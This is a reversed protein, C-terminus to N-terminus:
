PRTAHSAGDAVRTMALPSPGAWFCTVLWRSLIGMHRWHGFDNGCALRSAHGVVSSSQIMLRTM